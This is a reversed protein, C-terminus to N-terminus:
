KLLGRVSDVADKARDRLGELAAPAQSIAQRTVTTWIERTIEAASAGNTKKGLDRMQLDPVSATLAGGYSVRANRVQVRDIIFKRGPGADKGGGCSGLHSEINKQIASLNDGNPGPEYTIHPAILSTEKIHGVDSAPPPPGGAPRMERPTPARPASFRPPKGIELGGIAGLGEVPELKVSKVKVSVGTLDPGYREIAHKILAERSAYLWWLTGGVALLLVAGGILVATRVRM